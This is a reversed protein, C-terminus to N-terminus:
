AAAREARRGVRLRQRPGGRRTGSETRAAVLPRVALTRKEKRGCDRVLAPLGRPPEAGKGQLDMRGQRTCFRMRTMANVIVRLRDWGALADDWREPKSGYMNALFERYDPARLAAEVESASRRAGERHEVAAAPRCAGDRLRGRCADDAAHAALRGAGARRAGGARRRVHRGQAAREFGEYQAVLHLDHNGLVTSRASASSACSACCRSRSRDATSWTASSGCRPRGQRLRSEALLQRCSTSAARCTASRTRRWRAAVIAAAAIIVVEPDAHKRSRLVHHQADLRDRADRRPRLVPDRRLRAAVILTVKKAKLWRQVSPQDSARQACRVERVYAAIDERTKLTRGTLKELHQVLEERTEPVDPM